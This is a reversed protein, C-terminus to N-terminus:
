LLQSRTRKLVEAIREQELEPRDYLAPDFSALRQLETLRARDRRVGEPDDAARERMARRLQHQTRTMDAPDVDSAPYAARLDRALEGIVASQAAFYASDPGPRAPAPPRPRGAAPTPPPPPPAPAGCVARAPPAPGLLSSRGRARAAVAGARAGAARRGHVHAVVRDPGAVGPARRRRRPRAARDGMGHGGARAAAPRRARGALDGHGRSAAARRPRPAGLGGLVGHRRRGARQR